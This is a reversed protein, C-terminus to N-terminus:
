FLGRSLVHWFYGLAMAGVFMLVAITVDWFFMAIKNKRIDKKDLGEMAIEQREETAQM